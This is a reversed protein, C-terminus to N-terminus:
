IALLPFPDELFLLFLRANQGRDLAFKCSYLIVDGVVVAAEQDLVGNLLATVADDDLEVDLREAAGEFVDLEPGLYEHGARAEGGPRVDVVVAPQEM